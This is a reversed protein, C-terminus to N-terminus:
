SGLPCKELLWARIKELGALDHSEKSIIYDDGEEKWGISGGSTGMRDGTARCSGFDILVPSRDRVMVNMPCLDNHVLGIGHLGKMITTLDRMFPEPDVSGLGSELLRYLSQGEVKDLVIGTIRGRKVRCGRYGVINPIPNRSIIELARAEDLLLDRLQSLGQDNDGKFFYYDHLSPRKIFVEGDLHEPAVTVRGSGPLKPHIHEDPIEGLAAEVLIRSTM